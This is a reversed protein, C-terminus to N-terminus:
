RSSIRALVALVPGRPLRHSTVAVDAFGAQRVLDALVDAQEPTWGHSALGTAGPTVQREVALLRGDPRLVRRAEALAREVDPVHHITSLTWVVDASEDPLPLHEAYAPQWTVQKRLDLLRAVRLMVDAPDIGTVTMGGRAALRAAAGPGCGVDVVDEGPRAETVEVALRAMPARGTTMSLAALLGSLGSFGPHHAHHNPALAESRPVNSM